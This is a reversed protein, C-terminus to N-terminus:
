YSTRVQPSTKDPIHLVVDPMFGRNLSEKPPSKRDLMCKNKASTTHLSQTQSQCDCVYHHVRHSGAVPYLNQSSSLKKSGFDAEVICNSIAAYHTTKIEFTETYTRNKEQDNTYQASQTINRLNSWIKKLTGYRNLPTEQSAM